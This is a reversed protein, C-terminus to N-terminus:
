GGAEVGASPHRRAVRVKGSSRPMRRPKAPLSLQFKRFCWPRWDTASPIGFPRGTRNRGAFGPIIAGQPVLALVSPMM